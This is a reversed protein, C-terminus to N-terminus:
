RFFLRGSRIDPGKLADEKKDGDLDLSLVARDRSAIELKEYYAAKKKFVDDTANQIGMFHLRLVLYKAWMNVDSNDLVAWKTLKKQFEDRYGEKDLWDLILGQAKRHLNLYSGRGQPLWKMIDNEEAVLDQDKSFLRDGEPTFLKIFVNTSATDVVVPGITSAEITLTIQKLGYEVPQGVLKSEDLINLHQLLDKSTYKPLLKLPQNSVFTVQNYQDLSIAVVLLSAVAEMEIKIQTLLNALTYTAPTVLALYSMGAAEFHVENNETTVDFSYSNFAFDLFWKKSDANFVDIDSADAGPKIKVSSLVGLSGKVQLSKAADFRTLDKTQIADEFHLIPVIM